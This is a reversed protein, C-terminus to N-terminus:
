SVYFKNDTSVFTIMNMNDNKQQFFYTNVKKQIDLAEKQFNM